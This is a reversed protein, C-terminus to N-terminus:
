RTPDHGLMFAPLSISDYLSKLSRPPITILLRQSRGAMVERLHYALAELHWNHLYTQSPLLEYFCRETFAGFRNRLLAGLQRHDPVEPLHVAPRPRVFTARRRPQARAARM